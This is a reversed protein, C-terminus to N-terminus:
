VEPRQISLTCHINQSMLSCSGHCPLDMLIRRKAMIQDSGEQDQHSFSNRRMVDVSWLLLTFVFNANTIFIVKPVRTLEFHGTWVEGCLLSLFKTLTTAYRSVSKNQKIIEDISDCISNEISADPPTSHLCSFGILSTRPCLTYLLGTLKAYVRM